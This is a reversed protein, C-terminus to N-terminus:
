LPNPLSVTTHFARYLRRDPAAQTLGQCNTYTMASDQVELESRLVLCLRVARVQRWLPSTSAPMASGSVEQATLYRLTVDAVVLCMLCFLMAAGVLVLAGDIADVIRRLARYWHVEAALPPATM